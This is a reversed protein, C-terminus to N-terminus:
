RFVLRGVHPLRRGVPRHDLLKQGKEVTASIPTAIPPRVPYQGGPFLRPSPSPYSGSQGALATIDAATLALDVAYQGVLRRLM